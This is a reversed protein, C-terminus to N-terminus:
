NSIICQSEDCGIVNQMEYGMWSYKVFGGKNTELANLEHVQRPCEFLAIKWSRMTLMSAWQASYLWFGDMRGKDSVKQQLRRDCWEPSTEGLSCGIVDGDPPKTTAVGADRREPCSASATSWNWVTSETCGTSARGPDGVPSALGGPRGAARQAGRLCRWTKKPTFRGPM